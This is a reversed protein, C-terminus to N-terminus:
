FASVIREYLAYFDDPKYEKFEEEYEMIDALCQFDSESVFAMLCPVDEEIDSGGETYGIDTETGPIFFLLHEGNSSLLKKWKGSGYVGDEHVIEEVEGTLHFFENIHNHLKQISILEQTIRQFDDYTADPYHCLFVYFEDSSNSLIDKETTGSKLLEKIFDRYTNEM